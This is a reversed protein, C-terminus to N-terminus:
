LGVVLAVIVSDGDIQSTCIAVSVDGVLNLKIPVNVLSNLDMLKEENPGVKLRPSALKAKLRKGHRM